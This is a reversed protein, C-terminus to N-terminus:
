VVDSDMTSLNRPGKPKCFILADDAFLLHTVAQGEIGRTGIKWGEPYGGAVARKILWSLAEM